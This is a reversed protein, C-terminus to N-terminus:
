ELVTGYLVSKFVQGENQTNLIFLTITIGPEATDLQMRVGVSLNSFCECPMNGPSALQSDKGVKIDEIDFNAVISNPVALREGRFLVQPKQEIEDDQLALIPTDSSFGIPFERAHTPQEEHVSPGGPHREYSVPIGRPFSHHPHVVHSEGPGWGFPAHPHRWGGPHPYGHHPHGYGPPPPPPGMQHMGPPMPPPPAGPGGAGTMHSYADDYPAAAGVLMARGRGVIM